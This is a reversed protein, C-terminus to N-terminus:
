RMTDAALALPSVAKLGALSQLGANVSAAAAVFAEISRRACATLRVFM